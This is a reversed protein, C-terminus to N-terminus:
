SQPRENLLVDIRGALRPTLEVIRDITGRIYSIAAARNSRYDSVAEELDPLACPHSGCCELFLPVSRGFHVRIFERHDISMAIVLHAADFIQRTLTRRPHARADLGKQVLYEAVEPPVVEPHGQTGASAVAIDTRHDLVTRLSVFLVQRRM